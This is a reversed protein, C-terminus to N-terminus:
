SALNQFAENDFKFHIEDNNSVAGLKKYFNIAKENWKLVQFDIRLANQAKGIKAIERIIKEGIGFHRYDPKIYIDELYIGRQGKFSSFHPFFIAYAIPTQDALVILSQVFSNEGFIANQLSQESVQCYESLNEFEAFERIMALIHPIDTLKTKEIKLNM